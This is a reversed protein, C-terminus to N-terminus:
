WTGDDCDCSCNGICHCTDETIDSSAYGLECEAVIFESLSM